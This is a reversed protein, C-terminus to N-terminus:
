PKAWEQFVTIGMDVYREREGASEVIALGLAIDTDAMQQAVHRICAEFTRLPFHPHGEINFDLDNPGFAVMDVGPRALQHANIIGEVSELQIGLVASENWWAAYALRDMNQSGIGFRAAGGWSRRGQQPYYFFTVADDVTQEHMVEPVLISAPGLDCYRGALYADRTHPLRLQVPLGLAEANACFAVLQAESFPTHQGDLYIFDYDGKGLATELQSRELAVDTRLATVLKRSRIRAKLSQAATSM